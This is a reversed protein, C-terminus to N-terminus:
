LDVSEAVDKPSATEFDRSEGSKEKERERERKSANFRTAIM